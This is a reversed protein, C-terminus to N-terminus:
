FSLAGVGSLAAEFRYFIKNFHVKLKGSMQSVIDISENLHDIQSRIAAVHTYLKWNVPGHFLNFLRSSRCLLVRKMQIGTSALGHLIAQIELVTTRLDELPQFLCCSLVLFAGLRILYCLLWTCITGVPSAISFLIIPFIQM